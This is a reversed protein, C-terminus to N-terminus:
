LFLIMWVDPNDPFIFATFYVGADLFDLCGRTQPHFTVLEILRRGWENLSAGHSM